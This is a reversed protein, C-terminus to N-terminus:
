QWGEVEEAMLKVWRQADEVSINKHMIIQRDVFAELKRYQNESGDPNKHAFQKENRELYKTVSKLNYSEMYTNLNQVIDLYSKKHFPHLSQYAKKYYPRVWDWAAQKLKEDAIINYLSKNTFEAWNEPMEFNGDGIIFGYAVSIKRIEHLHAYGKPTYVFNWLAEELLVELSYPVTEKKNWEKKVWVTDYFITMTKISFNASDRAYRTKEGLIYSSDPLIEPAKSINWNYNYFSRDPIMFENGLTDIYGFYMYPQEPSYNTNPKKIAAYGNHFATPYDYRYPRITDNTKNMYVNSANEDDFFTTDVFPYVCGLWDLRGYNFPIVVENKINIFGSSYGCYHWPCDGKRSKEAWILNHSFEGLKHYEFPIIVNGLSDIIGYKGYKKEAVIYDTSDFMKMNYYECPVIVKGTHDVFGYLKNDYVKVIDKDRFFYAFDYQLPIVTDGQKNFFGYNAYEKVRVLGHKNFCSLHRYRLDFVENGENDIMGWFGDNVVRFYKCDDCAVISDYQASVIVKGRKKQLGYLSNEKYISITNQKACSVLFLVSTIFVTCILTFNMYFLQFQLLLFM